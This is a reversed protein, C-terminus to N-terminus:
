SGRKLAGTPILPELLLAAMAGLGKFYSKNKRYTLENQLHGPLGGGHPCELLRLLHRGQRQVQGLLLYAYLDVCFGCIFM